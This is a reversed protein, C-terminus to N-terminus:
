SPKPEPWALNLQEAAARLRKDRTWLRCNENIQASVLLHADIYNLGLGHLSHRSVFALVEEYYAVEALDFGRLRDLVVERHALTGMALEGFVFPHMLIRGEMLLESFAIEPFRM